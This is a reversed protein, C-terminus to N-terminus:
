SNLRNKLDIVGSLWEDFDDEAEEWLERLESKEELLLVARISLEKLGKAAESNQIAWACMDPELRPSAYGMAAAVLELAAQAEEGDEYGGGEVFQNLQDEVQSWDKSDGVDGLFDLAGDCENFAVGWAGM